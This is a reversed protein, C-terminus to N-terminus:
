SGVGFQLIFWNAYKEESFIVKGQIDWPDNCEIKCHYKNEFLYDVAIEEEKCGSDKILRVAASVRPDLLSIEIM